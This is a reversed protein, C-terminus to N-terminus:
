AIRVVGGGNIRLVSLNRSCTRDPRFRTEGLLGEVPKGRAPTGRADLGKAYAVADVALAGIVGMDEDLQARFRASLRNFRQPDPGTFCAKDLDALQPESLGSWQLSGITTVGTGVAAAAQKLARSDANPVYIIDPLSGAGAQRLASRMDAPATAAPVAPLLSGRSAKLRAKFADSAQAGIAGQPELMTIRRAGNDKAYRLVAEVSQAPTVGFVWAGKAAQSKDNSLTLVPVDPAAQLVPAVHDRFLPGVLIDAGEAVAQRAAEAASVGTDGADIVHARSRSVNLDEALWVAKAMKRGLGSRPGSLPLLVAVKRPEDRPKARYTPGGGASCGAMLTLSGLMLCFGRRSFETSKPM